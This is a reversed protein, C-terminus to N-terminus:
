FLSVKAKRLKGYNRFFAVFGFAALTLEAVACATEQKTAALIIVFIFPAVGIKLFANLATHSKVWDKLWPNFEALGRSLGRSTSFADLAQGVCAAAYAFFFLFDM